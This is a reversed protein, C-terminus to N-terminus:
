RLEQAFNPSALYARGMKWVTGARYDAGCRGGAQQDNTLSGASFDMLAADRPIIGATLAQYDLGARRCAQEVFAIVRISVTAM